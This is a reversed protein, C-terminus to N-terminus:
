SPRWCGLSSAASTMSWFSRLPEIVKPSSMTPTPAPPRHLDATDGAVTHSGPRQDPLPQARRPRPPPLASAEALAPWPRTAPPTRTWVTVHPGGAVTAITVQRIKDWALWTTGHRTVLQLGKPGIILRVPNRAMHAFGFTLTGVVLAVVARIFTPRAIRSACLSADEVQTPM